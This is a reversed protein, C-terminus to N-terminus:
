DVTLPAHLTEGRVGSGLSVSLQWRGPMHLLLGSARFRGGGLSEVRPRYNMGHGHEPMTADIRPTDFPRGDRACAAFDLSFIEALPLPAPARWAVVFGRGEVAQVGRGQLPPTCGLAAVPLLAPCLAAALAAPGLTM